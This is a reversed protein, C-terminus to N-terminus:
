KVGLEASVMFATKLSINTKNEPFPQNTVFGYEPLDEYTVNINPFYGKTTIDGKPQEKASVPIGVKGGLAVYFATKDAGQYQLMLPITVMMTQITGKYNPSSVLFDFVSGTSINTATQAQNYNKISIGGNYIAFNAGTGIGWHRSFFFRYGLGAAGTWSWLDNGETPKTQLSSAGGGVNISFENRSFDQATVGFYTMIALIIIITKKNM